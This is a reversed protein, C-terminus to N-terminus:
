PHRWVLGSDVITEIRILNLKPKRPTSPFSRGQHPLLLNKSIHFSFKKEQQILLQTNM